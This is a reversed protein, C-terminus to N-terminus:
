PALKKIAAYAKVGVNLVLSVANVNEGHLAASNVVCMVCYPKHKDLTPYLPTKRGRERGREGRREGGKERERKEM